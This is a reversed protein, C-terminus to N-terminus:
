GPPIKGALRGLMKTAYIAARERLLNVDTPRGGTDICVARLQNAAATEGEAPHTAIWYLIKTLQDKPIEQRLRELVLRPIWPELEEMQFMDPVAAVYLYNRARQVPDAVQGPKWDSLARRM